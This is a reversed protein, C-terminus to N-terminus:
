DDLILSCDLLSDAQFLVQRDCPTYCLSWCFNNTFTLVWEETRAKQFCIQQPIFLILLLYTLFITKICFFDFLFM